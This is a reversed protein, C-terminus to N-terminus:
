LIYYVTLLSGQLLLSMCTTDPQPIRMTQLPMVLVGASHEHTERMMPVEETEDKDGDDHDGAAPNM